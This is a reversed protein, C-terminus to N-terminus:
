RTFFQAAASQRVFYSVSLGLGMLIYFVMAVEADGLNYHVIGAVFFGIAGGLCGLLIGRDIGVSVTRLSRWLISIYIGLIALWIMLAPLGREVVLQMPTSHFHGIPLKGGDFLEWEQWHDKISDMGVGFVFHRPSETWLRYGDRWMTARYQTSPDAADAMGIQRTQQLYLLVGVAIPIILVLAALLLKKNKSIILILFGSIMFALQSARTITLLMALSMLGIAALLLASRVWNRSESHSGWLGAAFIGLALSAILQMVESLTTWHGYFGTSRSVPGRDWSSIGLREEPSGTQPLQDRRVEVGFEFDPKYYELRTTENRQIEDVLESPTSIKRRNARLLTFGPEIGANALIGPSLAHIEIGRGILKQVPAYAAAVSASFVLLLALFRVARLTRMNCYVFYFILFLATGRLRDISTAPEYSFISSVASWLLFGWLAADLWGFRFPPRLRVFLRVAWVTMGILWATQTAAISIPAALVMLGILVFIIRDLWLSTISSQEPQSLADLPRLIREM